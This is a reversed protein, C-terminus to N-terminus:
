NNVFSRVREVLEQNSAIHKTMDALPQTYEEVKGKGVVLTTIDENLNLLLIEVKQGASVGFSPNDITTGELRATTLNSNAIPEVLADIGETDLYEQFIQPSRLSLLL